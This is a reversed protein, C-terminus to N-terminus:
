SRQPATYSYMFHLFLTSFSVCLLCIINEVTFEWPNPSSLYNKQHLAQHLLTLLPGSNSGWCQPWTDIVGANSSLSLFIGLAWEVHLRASSWTCPFAMGWFIPLFYCLVINSILSQGLHMHLCFKRDQRSSGFM